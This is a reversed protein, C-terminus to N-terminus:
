RNTFQKNPIAATVMNTVTLTGQVLLWIESYGCLSSKLM